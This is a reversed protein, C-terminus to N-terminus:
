LRDLLRRGARLPDVFDLEVAIAHGRADIIATHLEQGSGAQVPGGFIRAGDRRKRVHVHLGGIDVTFETADVVGSQGAEGV